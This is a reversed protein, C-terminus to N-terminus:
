RVKFFHLPSAQQPQPALLESPGTELAQQKQHPSSITHLQMKELLPSIYRERLFFCLIQSAVYVIQLVAANKHRKINISPLLETTTWPPNM